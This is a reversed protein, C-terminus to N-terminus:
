RLAEIVHATMRGTLPGSGFRRELEGAVADIAVALDGRAEIQPRLPTGTCYGTALGVASEAHGEVTVTEASIPELGGARVDAVAVDLDAYGHPVSQLFRPPDDPFARDLGAVVAMEFEHGDIPAWTALVLSGGPELVRRAEAHAAPKDPFFMVGFQCVVADFQEDDFPLDIADAQQWTAGPVCKRGFEVMAQNLDTATVDPGGDGALLERTLVGTGAALELVRRPRREAIRHGLEVAFPRFVTPVMWRDYAESMSDVWRRQSEDPM